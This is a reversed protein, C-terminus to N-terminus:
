YLANNRAQMCGGMPPCNCFTELVAVVCDTTQRLGRALFLHGSSGAGMEDDGIVM